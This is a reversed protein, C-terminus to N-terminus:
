ITFDMPDIFSQRWHSFFTKVHHSRMTDKTSLHWLFISANGFKSQPRQLNKTEAIVSENKLRRCYFNNNSSQVSTLARWSENSGPCKVLMRLRQTYTHALVTWFSKWKFHRSAEGHRRPALIGTDGASDWTADMLHGRSQGAHISLRVSNACAMNLFISDTWDDLLLKQQWGNPRLSLSNVPSHTKFREPSCKQALNSSNLWASLSRQIL